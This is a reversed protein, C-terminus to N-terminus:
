PPSPSSRSLNLSALVLFGLRGALVALGMANVVAFAGRPWRALMSMGGLEPDDALEHTYRHHPFHFARMGAPPSLQTLAALWGAAHNLWRTAFATGHASEHLMGFFPVHTLGHVVVAVALLWPSPALVVLGGTVVLLLTDIGMRWLGPGDRRDQILEHVLASELGDHFSEQM